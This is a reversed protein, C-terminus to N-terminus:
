QSVRPKAVWKRTSRTPSQDCLSFYDPPRSAIDLYKKVAVIIADMRGASNGLHEWAATTKKVLVSPSEAAGPNVQLSTEVAFDYTTTSVTGALSGAPM